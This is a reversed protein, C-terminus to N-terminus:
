RVARPSEQLSDSALLRADIRSAEVRMHSATPHSFFVWWLLALAAFKIVLIVVIDRGLPSLRRWWGDGRRRSLPRHGTPAGPASKSM